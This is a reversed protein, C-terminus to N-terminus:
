IFLVDFNYCVFSFSTIVKYFKETEGCEKQMEEVENLKDNLRREMENKEERVTILEDRLSDVDRHQQLLEHHLDECSKKVGCFETKTTELETLTDNYHQEIQNKEERTANLESFLSDTLRKQESLEGQVTKM